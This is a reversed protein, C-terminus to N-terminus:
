GRTLFSLHLEAHRLHIQTFQEDTVTGFVSHYPVATKVQWRAIADRLAALGAETMTANPVLAEASKGTLALGAPLGHRLFRGLMLKAGWRVYFPIPLVVGDLPLTFARALHEFIQGPSWNGLTQIPGSALGEADALMEDLSGFRVARRGTVQKTNKMGVPKGSLDFALGRAHAPTDMLFFVSKASSKPGELDDSPPFM